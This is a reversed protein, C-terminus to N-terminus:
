NKTWIDARTLTPISAALWFPNSDDLDTGAIALTVRFGRAVL